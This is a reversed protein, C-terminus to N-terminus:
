LLLMKKRKQKSKTQEKKRKNFLEFIINEIVNNNSNGNMISRIYSSSYTEGKANRIDKTRLVELIETTYRSGLVKKIENKETETIM